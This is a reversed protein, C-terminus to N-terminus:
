IWSVESNIVFKDNLIKQVDSDAICMYKNGAYPNDSTLDNNTVDFDDVFVYLDLGYLEDLYTPTLRDNKEQIIRERYSEDDESLRRPVGYDRGHADLWGGTATDLFLQDYPQEFTDMYEGISRNLVKRLQNDKKQMESHIPLMGVLMDMFESM